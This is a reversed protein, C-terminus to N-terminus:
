VTAVEQQWVFSDATVRYSDCGSHPDLMVIVSLLLNFKKKGSFLSSALGCLPVSHYDPSTGVHDGYGTLM